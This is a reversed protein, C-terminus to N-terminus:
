TDLGLARALTDMEALASADGSAATRAETLASKADTTKGLAMYGTVIRSWAAWDRPNQKLVDRAKTIMREGIMLNRMEPALKQAAAVFEAPSPNGLKKPEPAAFQPSGPAAQGSGKSELAALREEVSKRWPAGPGAEALLKRYTEKAAESRGNQEEYVGLWYKADVRAPDLTLLQQFAKHAPENVVGNSVIINAGAFGALREATEGVLMMAKAYAEGAEIARGQALYYPAIAAWGQGDDPAARLREEVKAILDAPTAKNTALALREAYPRGPLAPTGLALYLAISALPTAFAGLKVVLLSSAPRPPLGPGQPRDARRLLRRAIEVRASDAEHPGILGRDVDAKLENLQDRYVASDADHSPAAAGDLVSNLLLAAVVSSLLAFAVWFIM